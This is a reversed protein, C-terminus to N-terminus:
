TGWGSCPIIGQKYFEERYFLIQAVDMDWTQESFTKILKLSIIIALVSYSTVDKAQLKHVQWITQWKKLGWIFFVTSQMIM